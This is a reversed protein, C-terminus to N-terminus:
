PVAIPTDDTLERFTTSVTAEAGDVNTVYTASILQGADIVLIVALDAAVNFASAPYIANLEFTTDYEDAISVSTPASLPDLPSGIEADDTVFDWTGSDTRFWQAQDAILYEIIGDGSQITMHSATGVQRGEVSIATAEDVVVESTFEYGSEYRGLAAGLISSGAESRGESEAAITPTPRATLPEDATSCSTTSLAVILLIALYSRVSHTSLDTM